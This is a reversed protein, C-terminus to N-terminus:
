LSFANIEENTAVSTYPKSIAIACAKNAYELCEPIPRGQTYFYAFTAIATDGAGSVNVIKKALSPSHHTHDSQRSIYIMGNESEKRVVNPCNTYEASHALWEKMNPFFFVRKGLLAFRTPGAKTDVFISATPPILGALASVSEPTFAGKNYDSIIVGDIDRFLHKALKLQIDTFPKVTDDDQDWRALQHNNGILRNKIPYPTPPYLERVLVGLAKLNETVNGAGGPFQIVESITVVPIPAEPSLRTATGIFYRDTFREGIVLLKPIV